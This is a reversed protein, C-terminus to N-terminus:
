GIRALKEISAGRLEDSQSIMKSVAEYARCIEIM